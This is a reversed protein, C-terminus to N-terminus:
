GDAVENSHEDDIGGSSSSSSSGAHGGDLFTGYM